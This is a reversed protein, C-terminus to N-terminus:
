PKNEKSPLKLSDLTKIYDEHESCVCLKVEENTPSRYIKCSKGQLKKGCVVCRLEEGSV